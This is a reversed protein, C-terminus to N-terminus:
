DIDLRVLGLVVWVSGYLGFCIRNRVRGGMVLGYEVKVSGPWDQNNKFLGPGVLVLRVM